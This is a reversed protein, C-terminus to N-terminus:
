WELLVARVPSADFGELRLPLAILEYPGAPVDRLVLHELIALGHALCRRHALLQTDDFLDVSPTDVGVLVVGEAHLADVLAPELAAFGNEFREPDPYTGTTILVRPARLAPPLQHRGIRTGPAAAVRVVECSGLYPGLAVQDISAAPHGYHSPADAHAGAHASARLTSLTLSAGAAMDLLVERSPPTDGPWVALRPSVVPSIDHLRRM